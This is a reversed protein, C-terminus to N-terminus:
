PYDYGGDGIKCRKLRNIGKKIGSCLGHKEISLLMYESCSPEFRCKNRVSDPAYRQYIMILFIVIKKAFLLFYLGSLGMMALAIYVVRIEYSRMAYGVISLSLILFFSWLIVRNWLITPRNLIRIYALSRPDNEDEFLQQGIASLNKLDEEGFEIERM